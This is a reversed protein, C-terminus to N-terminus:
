AYKEFNNEAIQKEEVKDVVVANVLAATVVSGKNRATTKIQEFLKEIDRGVFHNATLEHAMRALAAENLADAEIKVPQLVVPKKGLWRQWYTPQQPKEDVGDILYMKIYLKIIALVQEYAPVDIEIKHNCRSIVAPDIDGPRNTIFVVSYDRSQTGTADLILTLFKRTKEDIGQKSRNPLVVEAEDLIVIVKKPNEKAKRFLDTIEQVGVEEKYGALKAGSFVLYDMRSSRAMLMGVLTKGTGPPGYFLFNPLYGGNEVTQGLSQTIDAIKNALKPAFIADALRAQEPKAGTIWNYVRQRGSLLSTKDREALEPIELKREIEKAVIKWM